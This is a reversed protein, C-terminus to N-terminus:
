YSQPINKTQNSRITRPRNTFPYSEVPQRRVQMPVGVGITQITKDSQKLKNQEIIGKSSQAALERKTAPWRMAHCFLRAPLVHV